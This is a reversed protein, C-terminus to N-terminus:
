GERIKTSLCARFTYFSTNRKYKRDREDARGRPVQSASILKSILTFIKSFGKVKTNKLSLISIIYLPTTLVKHLLILLM